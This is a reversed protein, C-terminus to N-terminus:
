YGCMRRMEAESSPRKLMDALYADKGPLHTVGAFNGPRELRSFLARAVQRLPVAKEGYGAPKNSSWFRVYKEGGRTEMGLFVVLHGRERSGIEKSWFIKLFDGPRAESFDTFNRGAQLEHFLRATGPGNANWRGWVGVGDPQNGVALASQAEPPLNTRQLVKLLLLYTASSCFSPKASDPRVMLRGSSVNAAGQLALKAERTVAYGGGSPMRSLEELVVNNWDVAAQVTTM